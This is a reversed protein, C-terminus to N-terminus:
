RVPTGTFHLQFYLSVGTLQLNNFHDPWRSAFWIWIFVRYYQQSFNNNEFLGELLRQIIERYSVSTQGVLNQKSRSFNTRNLISLPRDTLQSFLVTMSHEDDVRKRLINFVYDERLDKQRDRNKCEIAALEKSTMPRNPEHAVESLFDQSGNLLVKDM